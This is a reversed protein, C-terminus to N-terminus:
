KLVLEKEPSFDLFSSPILQEQPDYLIIERNDDDFILFEGTDTQTMCEVSGDERVKLEHSKAYSVATPVKTPDYTTL